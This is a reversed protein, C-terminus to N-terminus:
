GMPSLTLSQAREIFAKLEKAQRIQKNIIKLGGLEKLARTARDYGRQANIQSAGSVLGLAFGLDVSSLADTKAMLEDMFDGAVVSDQFLGLDDQFAKLKSANDNFSKSMLPAFFESTYRARKGVIRLQHLNEAKPDKLVRKFAKALRQYSKVIMEAALIGVPAQGPHNKARRRPMAFAKEAKTIFQRYRNSSLAALLEHHQDDWHKLMLTKLESWGDESIDGLEAKWNPLALLHVDLDRVKGLEAALWKLEGQLFTLTRPDFAPSFTKLAARLRRTSVRMKHLHESDLGVWTGSQYAKITELLQRGIARAVEDVNALAGFEPKAAAYKYDQLGLLRRARIYKSIKSAELTKDKAILHAAEIFKKEDGELLELEVESFFEGKSRLSKLVNVHDLCLEASFGEGKLIYLQRKTKLHLEQRPKEKLSIIFRELVLSKLTDEPTKGRPVTASIEPRKMVLDSIIPVPKIDISRVNGRKRCRASLGARRLSGSPTDLYIDHQEILKARSLSYRNKLRRIFSQQNFNAKCLLKCEIEIQSSM